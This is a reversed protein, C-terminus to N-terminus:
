TAVKLLKIAAFDQVGGGVRKTTYFLVNPKSTFPDRLVRIGARDVILYGRRFDGFAIPFKNAAIDPMNDDTEHLYGLLQAPEGAQLPPQWVYNGDADKFKRIKATTLDNMLWAAGQRYQRKLGYVLDLLADVPNVGNAADLAKFGNADGTAIFGLKGWAYSANAVTDYGLLGRPQNVGNGSVFAAGEKEAFVINVEDGLWGEVDFAADDLMTQTTGPMAYLEMSHFALERLTPTDSESRAGEEGVWGGTAGGMNHLKKYVPAGVTRVTALGRLASMTSLVRTIATEMEEPVLFGGDPDSQTSLRAKVELGRLEGEVGKRFWKNFAAMHAQVDPDVNGGGGGVRQATLRANIADIEKMAESVAANIRELKDNRVVDGQGKELAKLRDDNAGKFEAFAKNVKEIAAAIDAPSPAADARVVQGAPLGPLHLKPRAARLGYRVPRVPATELHTNM